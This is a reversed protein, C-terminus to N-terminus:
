YPQGGQALRYLDVAKSALVVKGKKCFFVIKVLLDITSLGKGKPLTERILRVIHNVSAALGTQLRAVQAPLKFSKATTFLKTGYYALTNTV